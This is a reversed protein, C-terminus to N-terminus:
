RRLVRDSLTGCVRFCARVSIAPFPRHGDGATGIHQHLGPHQGALHRKDIDGPQRLQLLDKIHLAADRNAGADAKGIQNLMRQNLLAIRQQNGGTFGDAGRCSRLRAVIPPLM